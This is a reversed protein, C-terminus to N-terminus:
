VITENQERIAYYLIDSIAKFHTYNDNEVDHNKKILYKLFKTPTYYILIKKVFYFFSMVLATTSLVLLYLASNNVVFNFIGFDFLPPLRLLYLLISSLSAIIFINFLKREREKNFLELILISGYKEDLRSVVQLLIPYAIGFIAVVFSICISGADM